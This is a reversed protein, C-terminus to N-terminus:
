RARGSFDSTLEWHDGDLFARLLRENGGFTGFYLAPLEYYPDGHFADGWDIVGVLRGADVFLHDSHLDAHVIRQTTSPPSLSVFSDIQNV